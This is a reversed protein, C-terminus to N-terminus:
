ASYNQELDWQAQSVFEVLHELQIDFFQQTLVESVAIAAADTELVFDRNPDPFRVM